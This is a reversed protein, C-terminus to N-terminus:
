ADSWNYAMARSFIDQRDRFVKWEAYNHLNGGLHGDVEVLEAPESVPLQRLALAYILSFIAITAGIGLGLSLIAVTTLGVSNRMARVAYRIDQLISELLFM